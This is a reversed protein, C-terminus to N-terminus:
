PDPCEAEQALWVGSYWYAVAWKGSAVSDGSLLLRDRVTANFGTDVWTSGNFIHVSLTATSGQSLTGDLTGWIENAIRQRIYVLGNDENGQIEFGLYYRELNWQGPKPGWWDGDNIPGSLYYAQGIEDLFDACLGYGEDEIDEGLNVYWYPSALTTAPKDMQHVLGGEEGVVVGTKRMIGGAPITEGSENRFRYRIGTSQVVPNRRLPVQEHPRRDIERLKQKLIRADRESFVVTKAM